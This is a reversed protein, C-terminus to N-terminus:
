RRARHPLRHRLPARFPPPPDGFLASARFDPNSWSPTGEMGRFGSHMPLPLALAGQLNPTLTEMTVVLARGRRASPDKRRNWIASRLPKM